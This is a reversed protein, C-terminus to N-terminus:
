EKNMEVIMEAITKKFKLSTNASQKLAKELRLKTELTVTEAVLRQLLKSHLIPFPRHFNNKM